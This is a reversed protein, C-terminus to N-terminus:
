KKLHKSEAIQKCVEAVSKIHKGVEESIYEGEMNINYEQSIIFILGMNAPSKLGTESYFKELMNKVLIIIKEDESLCDLVAVSIALGQEYTYETREEVKLFNESAQASWVMLLLLITLTLKKM